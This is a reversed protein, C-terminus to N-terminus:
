TITVVGRDAGVLESLFTVLINCSAGPNLTSCDSKASYGGSAAISSLTLAANGLNTVTLTQPASVSGALQPAFTLSTTSLGVQSFAFQTLLFLSFFLIGSIPYSRNVIIEM